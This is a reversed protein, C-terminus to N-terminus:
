SLSVMNKCGLDDYNKSNAEILWPLLFKNGSESSRAVPALITGGVVGGAAVTAVLAGAAPAGSGFSVVSVFTALAGIGVWTWTSTSSAIGMLVFYDKDLQVKGLNALDPFVEDYKNTGYLYQSYTQVESKQTNAM